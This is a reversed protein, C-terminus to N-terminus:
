SYRKSNKIIVTKELPEGIGNVHEARVRFKYKIVEKLGIIKRSEGEVIGPMRDWIYSGEELKEVVYGLIPSSGDEILPKWALKCSDGFVDTINLPGEPPGPKDQVIIPIEASDTGKKDELDKGEARVFV